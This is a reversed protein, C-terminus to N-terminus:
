KGVPASFTSISATPYWSIRYSLNGSTVNAKCTTEDVWCQRNTGDERDMKNVENESSQMGIAM